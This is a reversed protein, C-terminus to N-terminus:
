ECPEALLDLHVTECGLSKWYDLIERSSLARLCNGTPEIITLSYGFSSLQQLLEEPPALNALQLAWPHFEVIIRSRNRKLLGAMGKLVAPEHAEVDIKVLDISEEEKLVEDLVVSPVLFHHRQNKAESTVVGGNSGVTAFKLIGAADSAAYPFVRVNEVHNELMSSYILQQNQPNPEFCMVKGTAGVLRSALLSFYGLNAGIDLFTSGAKLVRKVVATVHPEYSGSALIERGIYDNGMVFLRFGEIEVM